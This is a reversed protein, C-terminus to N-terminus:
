SVLLLVAGASAFGVGALRTFRASLRSNFMGLGLGIGNLLVSAAVFGLGYSLSDAAAPIEAGHAFGHFIGLLATLVLGAVPPLRKASAILLGIAFLSAAIGQEIGAPVFGTRGLAAGLALAAVFGSPVLWRSRGGLQAAWLGVAVMALLHDFGGLPHAFGGSFDWALDHGGDHGPHASALAPLLVSLASLRCILSSRSRNM